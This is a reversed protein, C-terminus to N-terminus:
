RTMEPGLTDPTLLELVVTPSFTCQKTDLSPFLHIQPNNKNSNKELVKWPTRVSLSKHAMEAWSHQKLLDSGSKRESEWLRPQLKSGQWAM